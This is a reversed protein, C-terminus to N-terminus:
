DLDPAELAEVLACLAEDGVWPIRKGDRTLGPLRSGYRFQCFYWGLWRELLLLAVEADLRDLRRRVHRADNGVRRRTHAWTRPPEPLLSFQELVELSGFVQSRAELGAGELAAAALVELVRGAYLITGELAGVGHVRELRDLDDELRFTPRTYAAVGATIRSRWIEGSRASDAM